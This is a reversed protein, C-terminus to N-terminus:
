AAAGILACQDCLVVLSITVHADTHGAAIGILEIADAWAPTPTFPTVTHCTPCHRHAASATGGALATLEFHAHEGTRATISRVLGAEICKTLNRYVSSQPLATNAALITPITAPRDLQHLTRLLERRGPTYRQGRGRLQTAAVADLRDLDHDSM